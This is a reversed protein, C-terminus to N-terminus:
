VERKIPFNPDCYAGVPNKTIPNIARHWGGPKGYRVANCAVCEQKAVQETMRWQHRHKMERMRRNNQKQKEAM